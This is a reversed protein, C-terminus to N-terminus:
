MPVEVEKSDEGSASEGLIKIKLDPCEDCEIEVECTSYEHQQFFSCGSIAGLSSLIVIAGFPPHM